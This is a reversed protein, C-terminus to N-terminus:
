YEIEKTPEYTFKDPSKAPHSGQQENPRPPRASPAQRASSEKSKRKKRSRLRFLANEYTRMTMVLGLKNIQELITKHTVGDELATEIYPLLDGLRKTKNKAVNAELVYAPIPGTNQTDSM